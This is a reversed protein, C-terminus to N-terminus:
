KTVTMNKSEIKRGDIVLSYVYQGASLTATNINVDNVGDSLSYSSILKGSTTYVNLQASKASLPVFYHIMTNQSFPNPTNQQVWAGNVGASSSLASSQNVILSQVLQKLENIQQQQKEIIAQQEQM